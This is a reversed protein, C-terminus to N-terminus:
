GYKTWQGNVYHLLVSGGRNSDSATQQGIAWYEGNAVREIHGVVLPADNAFPWNVQQWAGNLCHYMTTVTVPQIHGNSRRPLQKVTFVWGDGPNSLYGDTLSSNAPLPVSTWASGNFRLMIPATKSPMNTPHVPTVSSGMAWGDTPSTMMIQGNDWGEPLPWTTWKGDHYHAPISIGSVPNYALLWADDPGLSVIDGVSSGGFDSSLASLGSPLPIQSWAGDAYHFLKWIEHRRSDYGMYYSVWGEGRSMALQGEATQAPLDTPLSMQEWRGHIYHLLVHQLDGSATGGAGDAWGEDRSAMAVSGISYGAIGSASVTWGCHAYHLIIGSYNQSDQVNGAAWGEDPATMTMTTLTMDHPLDARIDKADCAPAPTTTVQIKHSGRQSGLEVFIGVALVILLLAAIVAGLPWIHRAHQRGSSSTRVPPSDTLMDPAPAHWGNTAVDSPGDDLTPALRMWVAASTPPRQAHAYYEDLRRELADDDHPHDM